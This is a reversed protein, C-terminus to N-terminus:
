SKPSKKKILKENGCVEIIRKKDNKGGKTNSISMGEFTIPDEQIAEPAFPFSLFAGEPHQIPTLHSFFSLLVPQKHARVQYIPPIDEMVKIAM